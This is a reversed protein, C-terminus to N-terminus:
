VLSGFFQKQTVFIVAQVHLALRGFPNVELLYNWSSSYNRQYLLATVM